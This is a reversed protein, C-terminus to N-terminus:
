EREGLLLISCLDDVVVVVVVVTGDPGIYEMEGTDLAEVDDLDEIDMDMDGEM